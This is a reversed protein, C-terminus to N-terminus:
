MTIAVDDNEFLKRRKLLINEDLEFSFGIYKFKEPKFRLTAQLNYFVLDSM